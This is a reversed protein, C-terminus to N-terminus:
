SWSLFTSHGAHLSTIRNSLLHGSGPSACGWGAVVERCNSFFARGQLFLCLHCTPPHQGVRSHLLVARALMRRRAASGFSFWAGPLCMVIRSGCPGAVMNQCIVRSCLYHPGAAPGSLWLCGGVSLGGERGLQRPQLSLGLPRLFIGLPPGSHSLPNGLHAVSPEPSHLWGVGASGGMSPVRPGGQCITSDGLIGPQLWVSQGPCEPRVWVACGWGHLDPWPPPRQGSVVDAQSCREQSAGRHGEWCGGGGPEAAWAVSLETMSSKQVNVWGACFVLCSCVSAPGWGPSLRPCEAVISGVAPQSCCPCPSGNKVGERDWQRVTVYPCTISPSHTCAKSDPFVTFVLPLLWVAM